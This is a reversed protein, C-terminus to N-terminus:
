QMETSQSKVDPFDCPLSTDAQRGKGDMYRVIMKALHARTLIGFMNAEKMTNM